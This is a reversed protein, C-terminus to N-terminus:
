GAMKLGYRAGVEAPKGWIPNRPPSKEPLTPSCSSTELVVVRSMALWLEADFLRERNRLLDPACEVVRMALADDM